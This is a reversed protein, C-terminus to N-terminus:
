EISQITIITKESESKKIKIQQHNSKEENIEKCSDDSLIGRDVIADIVYKESIGFPDGFKHRYSRIKVSVQGDFGEIKEKRELDNGSAQKSNTTPLPSSNRIKAHGKGILAKLQAENKIRM